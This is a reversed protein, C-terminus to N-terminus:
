IEKKPQDPRMLMVAKYIEKKDINQEALTNVWYLIKDFATWEGLIRWRQEDTM